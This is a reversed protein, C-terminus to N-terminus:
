IWKQPNLPGGITKIDAPLQGLNQKCTQSDTPAQVKLGATQQILPDITQKDKSETM